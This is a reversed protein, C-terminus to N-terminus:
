ERVFSQLGTLSSLGVYVIEDKGAEKIGYCKM